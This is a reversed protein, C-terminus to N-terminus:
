GTYLNEIGWRTKVEKLAQEDIDCAAVVKAEELRVYRDLHWTGISGCGIVGVGVTRM